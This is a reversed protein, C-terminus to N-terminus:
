NMLRKLMAQPTGPERRGGRGRVSSWLYRHLWARLVAKRRSRAPTVVLATVVSAVAITDGVAASAVGVVVGVGVFGRAGVFCGGVVWLQFCGHNGRTASSASNDLCEAQAWTLPRTPTVTAQRTTPPATHHPHPANQSTRNIQPTTGHTACTHKPVPATPLVDSQETDAACATAPPSQSAPGVTANSARPPLKGPSRLGM